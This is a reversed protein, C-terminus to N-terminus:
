NAACLIHHCSEFKRDQLPISKVPFRDTVCHFDLYVAKDRWLCAVAYLIDSRQWLYLSTVEGDNFPQSHIQGVQCGRIDLRIIYLQFGDATHTTVVLTNECLKADTVVANGLGISAFTFRSSNLDTTTM